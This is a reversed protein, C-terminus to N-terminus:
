REIWQASFDDASLIRLDGRIRTDYFEDAWRQRHEGVVEGSRKEIILLSEGGEPVPGIMTVMALLQRLRRWVRADPSPPVVSLEYVDSARM